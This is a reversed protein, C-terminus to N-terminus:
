KIEPEEYVLSLDGGLICAIMFVYMFVYMLLLHIQDNFIFRCSLVAIRCINYYFPKLLLNPVLKSSFVNDFSCFGLKSTKYSKRGGCGM